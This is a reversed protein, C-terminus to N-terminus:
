DSRDAGGQNGGDPSPGQMAQPIPGQLQELEWRNILGQRYADWPPLASYAPPQSPGAYAQQPWPWQPPVTPSPAQAWAVNVISALAAALTVAVLSRRM